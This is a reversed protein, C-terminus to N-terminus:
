ERLTAGFTVELHSLVRTVLAEVEDDTLTRSFEQLTLGIALSKAGSDIGKGTYVDFVNAERLLDGAVEAIAMQVHSATVNHDVVIALDRRIVPFRSLAQFQAVHHRQLAAVDVEFLFVDRDLSLTTQISPHLQGCWGVTTDDDALIRASQGPHLGAGAEAEFRFTGAQGSLALLAEVDGKLDFFDVPRNDLGWQEAAADGCVIGAVVNEESAKAGTHGHGDDGIPLFRVGVEFLRVRKHQRHLNYQLAQILGPWLSTRMVSLEASLPNALRVAAQQPDLLQQLEEAIFSYCIAEQYDRQILVDRLRRSSDGGAVAAASIQTRARPQSVPLQNYGHVRAIEEILDAEIAIDFRFTPATVSWGQEDAVIAQMGLADLIREVESDAVAM